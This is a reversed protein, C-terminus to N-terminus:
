ALLSIGAKIGFHSFIDSQSLLFKLRAEAKEARIKKMEADDSKLRNKEKKKQAKRSDREAVEKASLERTKKPASQKMAIAESNALTAGRMRTDTEGIATNKARRAEQEALIAADRAASAEEYRKKDAKHLKEFPERGATDLGRWNASVIKVVDGM